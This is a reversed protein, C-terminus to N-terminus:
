RASLQAAHCPIVLIDTPEQLMSAFFLDDGSEGVPVDTDEDTHLRWQPAPIPELAPPSSLPPLHLVPWTVVTPLPVTTPKQAVKGQLPLKSAPKDDISDSIIIEEADKAKGEGRSKSRGAKSKKKGKKKKQTQKNTSAAPDLLESPSITYVEEGCEPFNVALDKDPYVDQVVAPGWKTAVTDGKAVSTGSGSEKGEKKEVEKEISKTKGGTGSKAKASHKPLAANAKGTAEDGLPLPKAAAQVMPPVVVDPNAV